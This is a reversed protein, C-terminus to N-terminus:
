FKQKTLSFFKKVFYKAIIIKITVKSKYTKQKCSFLQFFVRTIFMLALKMEILNAKGFFKLQRYFYKREFTLFTFVKKNVCFFLSIKLLVKM